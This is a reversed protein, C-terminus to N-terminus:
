HLQFCPEYKQAESCFPQLRLIENIPYLKSLFLGPVLPLTTPSVVRVVEATDAWKPLEDPGM